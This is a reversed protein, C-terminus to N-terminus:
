DPTKATAPTQAQQAAAQPPAFEGVGAALVGTLVLLRVAWSAAPCCAALFISWSTLSSPRHTQDGLLLRAPGADGRRETQAGVAM